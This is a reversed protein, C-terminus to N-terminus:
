VTKDAVHKQDDYLLMALIFWKQKDKYQVSWFKSFLNLWSETLKTINRIYEGYM